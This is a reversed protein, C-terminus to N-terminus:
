DWGTAVPRKRDRIWESWSGVYLRSGPLGAVEMALLNHCATVGSGCMHVVKGPTRGSLLGGWLDRLEAPRRFVGGPGLNQEFPYNVAGPVHGAVPDIPERLGAFREGDRADVLLFAASDLNREVQATTVWGSGPSLEVLRTDPPPVTDTCAGGATLWASWGGDLVAVRRHGAARLLWWLRAAYAGSGQDYVVVQTDHHIGWRSLSDAFHQWDPLPHRGSAADPLGSLDRDLHGYFAGPIHGERYVQEGWSSDGLDFRCDIIRWDLATCYRKCATTSLLTDYYGPM